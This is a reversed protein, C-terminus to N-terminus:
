VGEAHSPSPAAEDETRGAADGDGGDGDAPHDEERWTGLVLLVAGVVIASDALNFVPWWQLDIFDIVPGGLFGADGPGDRFARDCLNGVAGGVVLGLAVATLPRTAHRGTRLLVAVVVLALVSILPGRGQALSFASGTNHMLQLQLTWVLEIVRGDDLAEVAWWKTLQDLALATAGVGALLGWRPSAAAVGHATV